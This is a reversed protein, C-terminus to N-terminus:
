RVVEPTPEAVRRRKESPEAEVIEVEGDDSSLLSMPTLNRVRKKKNKKKPLSRAPPPPASQEDDSLTICDVEGSTFSPILPALGVYLPPLKHQRALRSVDERYRWEFILFPGRPRNLYIFRAGLQGPTVAPEDGGLVHSGLVGMGVSATPASGIHSSPDIPKVHHLELRITGSSSSTGEVRRFRFPIAYGQEDTEEYGFFCCERRRDGVPYCLPPGNRDMMVACVQEGDVELTVYTATWHHTRNDALLVAFEEEEESEIWSTCAFSVAHQQDVRKFIKCAKGRSTVSASVCGEISTSTLPHAFRSALALHYMPETM